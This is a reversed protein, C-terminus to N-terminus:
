LILTFNFLKFYFVRSKRSIEGVKRNKTNEDFDIRQNINRVTSTTPKVSTSTFSDQDSRATDECCVLTATGDM